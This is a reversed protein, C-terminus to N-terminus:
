RDEEHELVFSTGRAFGEWGSLSACVGGLLNPSIGAAPVGRRVRAGSGEDLQEVDEHQRAELPGVPDTEGQLSHTCIPDRCSPLRGGRGECTPTKRLSHAMRISLGNVDVVLSM